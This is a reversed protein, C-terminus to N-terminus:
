VKKRVKPCPAGRAKASSGSGLASSGVAGASSGTKMFAYGDAYRENDIRRLFRRAMDLRSAGRKKDAAEELHWGKLDDVNEPVPYVFDAPSKPIIDTVNWHSLELVKKFPNGEPLTHEMRKDQMSAKLFDRPASRKEIAARQSQSRATGCNLSTKWGRWSYLRMRMLPDQLYRWRSKLRIYIDHAYKSWKSKQNYFVNWTEGILESFQEFCVYHLNYPTIFKMYRPDYMVLDENDLMWKGSDGTWGTLQMRTGDWKYSTKGEVM